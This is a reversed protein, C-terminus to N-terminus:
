CIQPGYEEWSQGVLLRRAGLVGPKGCWMGWDCGYNLKCPPHVCAVGVIRRVSKYHLSCTRKSVVMRTLHGIRFDLGAM